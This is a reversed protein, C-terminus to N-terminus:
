RDAFSWFKDLRTLIPHFFPLLLLMLMYINVVMHYLGTHVVKNVMNFIDCKTPFALILAHKNVSIPPLLYAARFLESIAWVVVAAFVSVASSRHPHGLQSKIVNGVDAALMLTRLAARPPPPQPAATSVSARM